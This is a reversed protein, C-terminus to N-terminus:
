FGREIIEEYTVIESQLLQGNSEYELQLKKANADLKTIHVNVNDNLKHKYTELNHTGRLAEIIKLM